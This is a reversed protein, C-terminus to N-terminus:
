DDLPSKFKGTDYIKDCKTETESLNQIIVKKNESSQGEIIQRIISLFNNISESQCSLAHIGSFALRWSKLFGPEKMFLDPIESWTTFKIM